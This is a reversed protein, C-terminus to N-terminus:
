IVPFHLEIRCEERSMIIQSCIQECFERLDFLEAREIITQAETIFRSIFDPEVKIQSGEREQKTAILELRLQESKNEQDHLATEATRTPQDMLGFNRTM